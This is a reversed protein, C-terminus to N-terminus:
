ARDQAPSKLGRFSIALSNETRGISFGRTGNSPRGRAAALARANSCYSFVKAIPGVWGDRHSRRFRSTRGVAVPDPQSRSPAAAGRRVTSERYSPAAGHCDAINEYGDHAPKVVCIREIKCHVKGADESRM